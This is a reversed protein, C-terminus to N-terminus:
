PASPAAAGLVRLETQRPVEIRGAEELGGEGTEEDIDARSAVVADGVRRVEYRAGAGAWWCRVSTLSGPSAENWCAGQEVRLAAVERQGDPAIGVLTVRTRPTENEDAGADELRLAIAFAPSPEDPNEEDSPEQAPPAAAGCAALVLAFIPWPHQMTRGTRLM